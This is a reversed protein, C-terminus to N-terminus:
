CAHKTYDQPELCHLARTVAMIEMTVSSSMFLCFHEAPKRFQEGSTLAIYAWSTWHHCMVAGDTYVVVETDNSNETILANISVPEAIM